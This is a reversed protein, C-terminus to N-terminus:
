DRLISRALCELAPRDVLEIDRRDVRVLGDDQLRRLGRSVSESALRLYNAIDTRTMTLRFRNPSCGRAAYGRSLSILFSAVRADASHNGALLAAKNIDQSLLHFLQQQLGPMRTALMAMSSFSFRCLIVSELAVANSPYRAESIGSLGIVEGPLFFGQVQERGEIDNVYTKVTGSRVAAIADFRDGERFIHEGEHYPETHEVLVHLERLQSKDYGHELCAASFACTSCFHFDDGDDAIPEPCQSTGVDM